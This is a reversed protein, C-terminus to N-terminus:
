AIFTTNHKTFDFCYIVLCDRFRLPTLYLAAVGSPCFHSYSGQFIFSDPLTFVWSMSYHTAAILSEGRTELDKKICITYSLQGNSKRYPKIYVPVVTQDGINRHSTPAYDEVYFNRDNSDTLTYTVIKIQDSGSKNIYRHRRDQVTGGVFLGELRGM